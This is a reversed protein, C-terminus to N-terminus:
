NRYLEPRANPDGSAAQLATLAARIAADPDPQLASRTAEEIADLWRSQEPGLPRAVDRAVLGVFGAVGSAGLAIVAARDPYAGGVVAAFLAAPVGLIMVALVGRLTASVTTPERTTATWAVALSAAVTAVPLVRDPPALDSLATPIAVGLG